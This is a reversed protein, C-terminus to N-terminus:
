SIRCFHGRRTGGALGQKDPLQLSHQLRMETKRTGRNRDDKSLQINDSRLLVPKNGNSSYMKLAKTTGFMLYGEAYTSKELERFSSPLEQIHEQFTIKATDKFRKAVAEKEKQTLTINKISKLVSESSSASEIARIKPRIRRFM